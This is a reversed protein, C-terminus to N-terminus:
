SSKLIYINLKKKKLDQFFKGNFLLLFDLNTCQLFGYHSPASNFGYKYIVIKYSKVVPFVFM